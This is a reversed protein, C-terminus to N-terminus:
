IQSLSATTAAQCGYVAKWRTPPGDFVTKSYPLKEFPQGDCKLIVIDVHMISPLTVYCSQSNPVTPDEVGIFHIGDDGIVFSTRFFIHFCLETKTIKNPLNVVHIKPDDLIPQLNVPLHVNTAPVNEKFRTSVVTPRKSPRPETQKAVTGKMRPMPEVAETPRGKPYSIMLEKTMLPEPGDSVAAEASPAKSPRAVKCTKAEDPWLSFRKPRSM